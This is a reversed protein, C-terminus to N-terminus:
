PLPHLKGETPFHEELILFKPSSTGCKAAFNVNQVGMDGHAGAPMPLPSPAPLVQGGPFTFRIKRKAYTALKCSLPRYEIFGFNDM